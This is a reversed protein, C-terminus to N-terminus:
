QSQSYGSLAGDALRRIGRGVRRNLREQLKQDEAQFLKMWALFGTRSGAYYGITHVYAKDANTVLSRRVVARHAPHVPKTFFYVAAEDPVIIRVVQAYEATAAGHKAQTERLFGRWQMATIASQAFRRAEPGEHAADAAFSLSSLSALAIAVVLTPRLGLIPGFQCWKRITAVLVDLRECGAGAVLM